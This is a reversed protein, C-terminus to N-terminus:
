ALPIVAHRGGIREVEEARLAAERDVRLPAEQVAALRDGVRARELHQPARELAAGVAPVEDPDPALGGVDRELLRRVRDAPDELPRGPRRPEEEGVAGALREIRRREGDARVPHEAAPHLAVVRGPEGSGRLDRGAERRRTPRYASV